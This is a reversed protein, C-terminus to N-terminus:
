LLPPHRHALMASRYRRMMRADSTPIRKPYAAIRPALLNTTCSPATSIVVQSDEAAAMLPAAPREDDKPLWPGYFGTKIAPCRCHVAPPIVSAESKVTLLDYHAVHQPFNPPVLSSFEYQHM